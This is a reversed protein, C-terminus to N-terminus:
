GGHAGLKKRAAAFWAQTGVLGAKLDKAAGHFGYLEGAYRTLVSGEREDLEELLEVDELLYAVGATEGNTWTARYDAWGHERVARAREVLETQLAARDADSPERPTRKAWANPKADPM